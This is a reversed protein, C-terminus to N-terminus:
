HLIRILKERVDTYTLLEEIITSHINDSNIIIIRIIIIIVIVLTTKTRTSRM